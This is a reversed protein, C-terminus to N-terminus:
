RRWAERRHCTGELGLCAGPRFAETKQAFRQKWSQRKQTQKGRDGRAGETCILWKLEPLPQGAIPPKIFGFNEPKIDGRPEDMPGDPIELCTRGALKPHIRNLM